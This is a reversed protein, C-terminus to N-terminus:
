EESREVLDRAQLDTPHVPFLLDVLLLHGSFLHVPSVQRPQIRSFDVYKMDKTPSTGDWVDVVVALEDVICEPRRPYLHIHIDFAIMQYWYDPIPLKVDEPWDKTLLRVLIFLAQGILILAHRRGFM